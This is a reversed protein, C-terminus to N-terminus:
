AVVVGENRILRIVPRPEATTDASPNRASRTCPSGARPTARPSCRGPSPAPRSVAVGMSSWGRRRPSRGATHGSDYPEIGSEKESSTMGYFASTASFPRLRWRSSNATSRTQLPRGVGATRGPHGARHRRRRRVRGGRGRHDVAGRRGRGVAPFPSAGALVGRTGDRGGPVTRGRDPDVGVRGAAPGRDVGRDARCWRHRDHRDRIAVALRVATGLSGRPAEETSIRAAVAEAEAVKGEAGTHPQGVLNNHGTEPVSASGASEDASM